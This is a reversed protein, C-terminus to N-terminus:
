LGRLVGATSRDGAPRTSVHGREITKRNKQVSGRLSQMSMKQCVGVVDVKPYVAIPTDRSNLTVQHHSSLGVFCCWNGTPALPPLAPPPQIIVGETM